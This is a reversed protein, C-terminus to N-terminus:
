PHVARGERLPPPAADREGGSLRERLYHMHPVLAQNPNGSGDYFLCVIPKGVEEEIRAFLSTTITGPMCFTPSTNVVADAGDREFFTLARGVTLIAEGEFELPVYRRGAEVVEDIHPEMRDSILPGAIRLYKNERSDFFWNNIYGNLKDKWGNKGGRGVHKVLYATYQFWEGLSAKMVEGGLREIMRCLDENLFHNSRLYIEGVVGVRPRRGPKVPIAKFAEVARRVSDSPDRRAALDEKFAHIAEWGTRDVEGVRQEYPRLRFIIKQLIDGIVIADWAQRRLAGSLGQYANVASPSVILLDEWGKRDFVIEDLRRYQGFRCPGCATPMFLAAKSPPTKTTELHHICSGLTSPCPVCEGGQCHKYGLDLTYANEELVQTRYGHGRFCADLLHVTLPDMPPFLITRERDLDGSVRRRPPAVPKETWSRFSEVAAEVRTMYGADAGHTDFQLILYPKRYRGMITKFYTVLYSDPGCGFNTFLIGFLNKSRAVYEAAALIKQGYNWYMNEWDESLAEPDVPLADMPIPTVGLKGIKRPLDLNLRPDNVNYPRGLVVIGMEGGAELREITATGQARTEEDFVAQAKRGTEFSARVQSLTFELGADRLAAHLNKAIKRAPLGFEIVPSIFRVDPRRAAAESSRVVAPSGQIFCCFQADTINSPKTERVMVPLFIRRAGADLLRSCHGLNMVFPACFEATMQERGADMIEDSSPPSLVTAVGLADFFTKWLPLYGWRTLSRPLAVVEPDIDRPARTGKFLRKRRSEFLATRGTDEKRRKKETYDRGCKMGWAVTESGTHILTLNCRNSCLECVEQSTEVDASAFSLGRFTRREPPHERLMLAIGLAGTLHCYPSVLIPRELVREFAAVLAKNRATAGQFYVREGISLGNVVKNLYNDRVSYLVAAAAERRTCGEALKEQLDRAMFVTCRDSTRPPPCGMVFDAYDWISVGLSKAQEEIFSGTGAACVYNMVSNVVVGDELQTFKADQGGIELITDVAPDLFTAARAHATIEDKELEAGVVARIMKRGSGTTGAGLVEFTVGERSALDEFAKFVLQTARVPDGATARYATAIVEGSPDLFLAKTSTSGIDIGLWGEYAKGRDLPSPLAIETEDGDIRFDHQEFSPYDSHRLELKPQRPVDVGNGTSSALADLSPPGTEESRSALVAAGRALLLEPREPVDVPFGLKRQIAERVKQNRIVGGCLVTRGKLTRGKLLMQVTAQGMSECLGAAIEEPTYGEQQLHIMDTKAFVACRTAVTPCREAKGAHEVMEEITFGLRLAQQDLFAGTGSACATNTSHGLYESRENLRILSYSGAGIYLINQPREFSAKVGEVTAVIPDYAKGLGELREGGMGTLTFSRVDSLDMSELMRRCAGVLDGRHAEYGAEGLRGDEGVVAVAVYTSGLDVGLYATM